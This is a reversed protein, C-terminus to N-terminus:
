IKRYVAPKVYKYKIKDRSLSESHGIFLFGGEFTNYYFKNVLREKTYEDFYIMVNRCFIVHLKKKFPYTEEMLNFRRFIVNNKIDNNVEVYDKDIVDFYKYRWMVPLKSISEKSYIGKKAKDLARESIDTALIKTDWNKIKDGFYEHLIMALTYAEEGSSCGASWIRIDNNNINNELFPLVINYLYDFHYPERYFYTHNTTLVNILQSVEKGSNDLRIHELYEEFNEFGKNVIINALRSEILNKKKNLCVGFNDYIFNVIYNFEKEQIDM